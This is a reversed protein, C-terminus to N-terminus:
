SPRLDAFPSTAILIEIALILEQEFLERRLKKFFHQSSRYIFLKYMYMCM